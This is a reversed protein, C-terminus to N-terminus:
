PKAPQGSDGYDRPTLKSAPDYTAAGHAQAPNAAADYTSGSNGAYSPGAGNRACGALPLAALALLVPRFKM